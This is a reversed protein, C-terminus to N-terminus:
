FSVAFLWWVVRGDSAQGISLATSHNPGWLPSLPSECPLLRRPHPAAREWGLTLFHRIKASRKASFRLGAAAHAHTLGGPSATARCHMCPGPSCLPPTSCRNTGSYKLEAIKLIAVASHLVPISVRALLSSWIVAERVTCDGAVCLPLLLGKYFAGPKYTAKKLAQTHIMPENKLLNTHVGGGM